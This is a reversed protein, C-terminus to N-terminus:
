PRLDVVRTQQRGGLCRQQHILVLQHHGCAVERPAHVLRCEELQEHAVQRSVTVPEQDGADPRRESQDLRHAEARV